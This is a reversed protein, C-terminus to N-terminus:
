DAIYPSRPVKLPKSKPVGAIDLKRRLADPQQTAEQYTTRIMGINGRLMLDNERQKEALMADTADGGNLMAPNTYKERGDLELVILRGDPLRWLFDVRYTRDDVPSRFWQQLEPTAYGWLFLLARVTSEGGNESRGDALSMICTAREVGHTGGREKAFVVLAGADFHYQRLAADCIALAQPFPLSRACDFITRMLGTVLMGSREITQPDGICHFELYGRNRTGANAAVALHVHEHMLYTDNLGWIAAASIHSFVWHPHRRAIARLIHLIRELWTLTQWYAPRAYLNPRIALLEGAQVRAQVARHLNGSVPLLCM